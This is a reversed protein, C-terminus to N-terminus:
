TSEKISTAETCRAAHERKGRVENECGREGGERNSAPTPPDTWRLKVTVCTEYLASPASPPRRSVANAIFCVLVPVSGNGYSESAHTDACPADLPLLPVALELMSRSAAGPPLWQWDALMSSACAAARECSQRRRASDRLRSRNPVLSASSPLNWSSPWLSRSMPPLTEARDKRCHRVGRKWVTLGSATKGMLM